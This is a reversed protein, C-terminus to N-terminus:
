FLRLGCLIYNLNLRFIKKVEEIYMWKWDEVEEQNITPTANSYGIMVHDLEM